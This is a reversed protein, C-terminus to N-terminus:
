GWFHEQGELGLVHPVEETFGERSEGVPLQEWWPAAATVRCRTVTQGRKTVEIHETGAAPKHPRPCSISARGLSLLSLGAVQVCPRQEWRVRVSGLLNLSTFCSVFVGPM